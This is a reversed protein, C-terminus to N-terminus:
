IGQKSIIYLFLSQITKGLRHNFRFQSAVWKSTGRFSLISSM